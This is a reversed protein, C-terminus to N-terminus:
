EEKQSNKLNKRREGKRIYANVFFRSFLIAFASYITFCICMNQISQQCVFTNNDQTLKLFAVYLSISVGILMSMSVWKPARLGLCAAAYYTYMISHVMYNLQIFWRGAATLETASHWSYILVVAHHFWHLFILPRKRLLLFITDGFEAIKSLAFCMAWFAVPETPSFSLCISDQFGRNFLVHFFEQGFRWAGMTSFIALGVNWFFLLLRLDFPKRNEMWKKLSYVGGIYALVIYISYHWHQTFMRHTLEANWLKEEVTWLGDYKYPIFYIKSGGYKETNWIGF